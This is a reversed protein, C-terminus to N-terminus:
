GGHHRHSDPGRSEQISRLLVWPWGLALVVVLATLAAPPAQKLADLRFMSDKARAACRPCQPLPRDGLDMRFLCLILVIMVCAGILYIGEIIKM